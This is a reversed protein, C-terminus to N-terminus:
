SCLVVSSQEGPSRSHTLSLSLSSMFSQCVDISTLHRIILAAHSRLASFSEWYEDSSDFDLLVYDPADPQEPDGAGRACKSSFSEFLEPVFPRM